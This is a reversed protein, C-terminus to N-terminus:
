EEEGEVRLAAIFSEIMSYPPNESRALALAAEDWEDARSALTDLLADLAAEAGEVYEAKLGRDWQSKVEGFAPYNGDVVWTAEAMAEICDSRLGM